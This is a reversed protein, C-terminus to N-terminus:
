TNGVLLSHSSPLTALILKWSIAPYKKMLQNELIQIKKQHTLSTYNIWGLFIDILTNFPQNHMKSKIEIDCLRALICVVQVVNNKSWSLTELAWLLNCHFCHGM